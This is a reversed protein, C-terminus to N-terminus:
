RGVGGVTGEALSQAEAPSILTFDGEVTHALRCVASAFNLASQGTMGSEMAYLLGATFGDGGGVRDVVHIRCPPCFWSGTSDRLLAAIVTDSSSVTRRATVAVAPIGFRDTVQAAQREMWDPLVPDDAPRQSGGRIGFIGELHAENAILLDIMTMMPTLVEAARPMSWLKSRYNLDFSIKIGKRKAARCAEMCTQVMSDSLAPTIGSFHFVSAGDLLRDWDFEQPQACAIASNARDYVVLSGRADAGKELFFIGVREGGRVVGGTDVGVRRLANVAAQGIAHVPLKSVFAADMGMSALGAAVNAEAGAYTAGFSDAQVFRLYGEPSLRLMIEGFTVVRAM